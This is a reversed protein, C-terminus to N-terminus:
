FCVGYNEVAFIDKCLLIDILNLSIQMLSSISGLYVYVYVYIYIQTHTHIYIYIYICVCVCVCLTHQNFQLRFLCFHFYWKCRVKDSINVLIVHFYRWIRYILNMWFFDSNDKIMPELHGWFRSCTKRITEKKLDIFAATIRAKLEDKTSCLKTLRKSLQEGCMTIRPIAIQLTPRGSTLLHHPRLFKKVASVPNEQNHPMTCLGTALCRTKWCSGYEWDLATSGEGAM